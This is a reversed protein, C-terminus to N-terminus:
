KGVKEMKCIFFGDIGHIFPLISVMGTAPDGPFWQPLEILQFDRYNDLFWKIVEHNEEPETSCTSYILKGKPKVLKSANALIQKQIAVLETIDRESKNWRADPKNRLVGLGSCPADVLVKDAMELQINRADGQYATVATTNLRTINEDILQVRKEDIDFAFIKGKNNVLQALHTSKGGPAACLDYILDGPDPTVAHGVLASSENQLYYYGATFYPDNIIQMGSTSSFIDDAFKGSALDIGKNTFYEQLEVPSIKLTNVRLDTQPSTNNIECFKITAEVGYRDLWREIMWSPHSYKTSIHAVPDEKLDPFSIQSQKRILNRLIANVFGSSRKNRNRRPVLKVSENVAASTPIRDLFLIQYAGIRLINRIRPELKKVRKKSIQNLYYDLTLQMRVSGYVIETTLRIDRESLNYLDIVQDIAEATFAGQEVVILADLAAARPNTRTDLM